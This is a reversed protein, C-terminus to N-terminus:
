MASRGVKEKKKKASLYVSRLNLEYALLSEYHGALSHLLARLDKDSTESRATVLVDDLEMLDEKELEKILNMAKVLSDTYTRAREPLNLEGLRKGYDKIAVISGKIKKEAEQAYDFAEQSVPPAREKKKDEIALQHHPTSAWNAWDFWEM